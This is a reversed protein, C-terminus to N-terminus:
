LAAGYGSWATALRMTAVDEGAETINHGQVALEYEFAATQSAFASSLEEPRGAVQALAATDLREISESMRQAAVVSRYNESLIDQSRKGLTAVTQVAIVGVLALAVAFPLQALHLKGRLTM